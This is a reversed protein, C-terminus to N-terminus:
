ARRAKRAVFVVVVWKGYMVQEPNIIRRLDKKLWGRIRRSQVSTTKCAAKSVEVREELAGWVGCICDRRRGRKTGLVFVSRCVKLARGIVALM